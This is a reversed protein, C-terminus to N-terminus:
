TSARTPSDLGPALSAQSPIGAPSSPHSSTHNLPTTPIPKPALTAKFAPENPKLSSNPGVAMEPVSKIRLKLQFTLGPDIGPTHLRLGWTRGRPWDSFERGKQTFWITLPNCQFNKCKGKLIKTCDKELPNDVKQRTVAILDWKSSPHWYAHGSTECGCDRCFYDGGGGVDKRKAKRGGNRFACM